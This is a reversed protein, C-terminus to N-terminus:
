DTSLNKSIIKEIELITKEIVANWLFNEKVKELSAHKMKQLNETSIKIANKIANEIEFINPANILWGNESDVLENTAGVNTAIIALGCSMAELIVTPMGESFSPCVLVDCSEVIEKIKQQNYIAGHLIITHSQMLDNGIDDVTLPGIFNFIINKSDTLKIAECLEKVGKRRENRGIFVFQLPKNTEINKHTLWTNEVGISQQLIRHKEIKNKLLLQTLNGGLSYVYDAKKLNSLMFPKLMWKQLNSKLDAAHQLPEIGHFNVAIPPFNERIIKKELLAWATFGQAYIYNTKTETLLKTYINQSYKFCQRIYHGIFGDSEPMEVLIHNIFKNEDVSFENDSLNKNAPLYHYLHVTIKKQAFYKALCYSHKQMGGMVFPYIGDTLISVSQLQM